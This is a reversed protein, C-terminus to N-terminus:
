GVAAGVATRMRRGLVSVVRSGGGGKKKMHSQFSGTLTDASSAHQRKIKVRSDSKMRILSSSM